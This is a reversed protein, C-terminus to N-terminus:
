DYSRSSVSIKLVERCNRPTAGDIWILCRDANSPSLLASTARLYKGGDLLSCV